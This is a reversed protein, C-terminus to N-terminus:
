NLISRAAIVGVYWYTKFLHLTALRGILKDTIILLLQKKVVAKINSFIVMYVSLGAQIM